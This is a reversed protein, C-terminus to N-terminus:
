FPIEEDPQSKDVAVNPADGKKDLMQMSQVIIETTYRTNGGKDEWRRTQLEGEIFLQSGRKLYEGCIEGLRRWAVIKHYETRSQKEGGTTWEKTTAMNFNSVCDGSATYRTDVDQTVGGILLVKNYGAM